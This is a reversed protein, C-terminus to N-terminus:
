QGVELQAYNHLFHIATKIGRYFNPLYFSENPSHIRDDPLGFGMLISELGLVTQFEGVVPISGGNRALLPEVEFVATYADRAAQMAPITYDTISAPAGHGDEGFSVKISPPTIQRVYDRFLQKIKEPDQDPVLRMSIKCHVSSPLVTKGGAGTYGGIIGHVDLTPRAGLREVLTYEPEGWIAPAGTRSLYAEETIPLQNLMAREEDGLERVDDYFGPILIHGEEDKLKALIHGLANLPNNIAGGYGGSHLDHSPGTLDIFDYYIGRLAYIISPQNPGLIGTDSILAIDAALKETHKPLYDSLTAGGDEEEGEYIFKVNIPLTGSTQLYAEVAKIHIYAQGKDDCAGRAYLRDGRVTPEFPPTDWLEIPDPPQVDFHGYILVTPANPAHLWDAYILPHRGVASDIIEINELGATRMAEALWNAAKYMDANHTPQTSVSPIRLLDKLQALNETQRSEAFSLAQDLQTTSM